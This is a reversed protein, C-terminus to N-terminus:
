QAISGDSVVAPVSQGRPQSLVVAVCGMLVLAAIWALGPPIIRAFYASEAATVLFQLWQTTAIQFPRFHEGGLLGYFLCYAFATGPIALLLLAALPLDAWASPAALRPATDALVSCLALLACAVWCQLAVGRVIGRVSISGMRKSALPMAYGQVAIACAAPVAWLMKAPSVEVTGNLLVLVAGVAIAFAPLWLGDSLALGLPLCAYLLPLWSGAMHIRTVTLLATPLALMLIGLLLSLGSPLGTRRNAKSVLGRLLLAAVTLACAAVGYVCASAAFPQAVGALLPDVIWASGWLLSITLFAAGAGVSGKALAQVSNDYAGSRPRAQM